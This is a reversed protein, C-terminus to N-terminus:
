RIWQNNVPEDLGPNSQHISPKSRNTKSCCSHLFRASQQSHQTTMISQWPKKPPRWCSKQKSSSPTKNNTAQVMTFKALKNPKSNIEDHVPQLISVQETLQTITSMQSTVTQTDVISVKLAPMNTVAPQTCTAMTHCTWVSSIATKVTSM